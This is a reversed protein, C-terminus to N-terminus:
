TAEQAELSRKMEWAKRTTDSILQAPCGKILYAYAGSDIAGQNLAPDDYATLIVVQVLPRMEKILRSAELGGMVPMRLDVLVVDPELDLVMQVGQAGNEAEGVVSFDVEQLLDRLAERLGQDDEILLVRAKGLPPALENM